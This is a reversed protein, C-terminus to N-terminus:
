LLYKGTVKKPVMYGGGRVRTLAQQRNLVNVADSKQKLDVNKLGVTTKASRNYTVASADRNGGVFKKGPPTCLNKNTCTKEAVGTVTLTLLTVAYPNMTSYIYINYVTTEKSLAATIVGSDPHIAIGPFDSPMSDNIQLIKHTFGSVVPPTTHEGAAITESFEDNYVFSITYPSFASNSLKYPTNYGDPQCWHTGFMTNTPTGLLVTKANSDTWSTGSNNEESYNGTSNTLVDSSSGGYIGGSTTGPKLGSTYCYQASQNNYNFSRGYIGGSFGFDTITGTSMCNTATIYGGPTSGVIGGADEGIAGNSYCRYIAVTGLNVNTGDNGCYMGVIGGARISISGTSYCEAIDITGNHGGCYAGAIGGASDGIEGTSSCRYIQVTGGLEGAHVGVIGGANEGIAGTTYCGGIQIIGGDKALNSGAIGGCNNAIPASTYCNAIFSNANGGFYAQAFWGGENALTSGNIAEIELNVIAISHGDSMSDGSQVLGPYNSVGDVTIKSRTGDPRLFVFGFVLLDTLSIFYSNSNYVTIDNEFIVYAYGSSVNTNEVSCPWYITNWTSGDDTSYEQYTETQRIRAFSTYGGAISITTPTIPVGVHVGASSMPGLMLRPEDDNNSSGHVLGESFIYGAGKIIPHSQGDVDLTGVSDSLYVLYTNDVTNGTKTHDAHAATNGRIWRMPVDDIKFLDLGMADLLVQKVTESLHITFDKVSTLNTKANVVDSMNLIINIDETSLVNLFATAM